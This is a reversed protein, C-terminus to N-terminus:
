PDVSGAARLRQVYEHFTQEFPALPQGVLEQFAAVPEAGGKLARVYRDLQPSGLLKREFTLFFALAWATVYNRDSVQQDSAHTVVFQQPGAKLLDALPVLDGKRVAAKAQALRDPDACGVRLEGAELLATEFIQALGEDLWHPVRGEAAPYVHNGLYAHFAEHYLIQFLRQTAEEFRRQNRQDTQTIKARVSMIARLSEAPIKGKYQRALEAEQARLKERLRSHRRRIGDLEDGLRQLDSGLVIQNRAADYYGPNLLDRGQERQFAQYEALSQLLLITTPRGADHRPPLWRAYAAYLQELRVAARRVVEESANSRLVFYRSRYCRGGAPDPGWPATELRLLEMREREGQDGLEVAEIRAALRDRDPGTLRDVRAVEDRRFTTHFIRTREGPRQVVWKFEVGSPSEAVVLGQFAKGKRDRLVEFKWDNGEAPLGATPWALGAALGLLWAGGSRGSWRTHRCSREM